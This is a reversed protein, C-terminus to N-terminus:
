ELGKIKELAEDALNKILREYGKCEMLVKKDRTSFYEQQLSLTKLVAEALDRLFKAEILKINEGM